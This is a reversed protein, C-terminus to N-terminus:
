GPITEHKATAAPEPSRSKMRRCQEALMEVASHISTSSFDLAPRFRISREGSRIALLGIEFLGKYSTERLERNPLDFALMFGRGRVSSLMQEGAALRSLEELFERGVTEANEILKEREIIEQFYTSRVMDVLGGGWTSNIRGSLRFVNDPVEDLRSGAMVGCVQAKKGFALLDPLM